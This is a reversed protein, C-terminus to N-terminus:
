TEDPPKPLHGTAQRVLDALAPDTALQDRLMSRISARESSSLGELHNTAQDVKLDLYREVDIKGAVLQQLPSLEVGQAASAASAKETRVEFPREVGAAPAAPKAEGPAVAPAVGPGKGIRDIGM